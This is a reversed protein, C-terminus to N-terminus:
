NTHAKRMRHSLMAGCKRSCTSKPKYKDYSFEARCIECARTVADAGSRRRWATKHYNSCFRSGAKPSKFKEGCYDCTFEMPDCKGFHTEAAHKRHWARGEDSAHWVKSAERARELAYAHIKRHEEKSVLQLNDISNNARDRDKHHIDHDEPKPGFHDEWVVVHMKRRDDQWTSEYYGWRGSRLFKRGKYYQAHAM